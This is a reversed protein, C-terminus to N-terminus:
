SVVGIVPAQRTHHINRVMPRWEADRHLTARIAELEGGSLIAFFDLITQEQRNKATAAM